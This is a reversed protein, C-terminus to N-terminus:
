IIPSLRSGLLGMYVDAPNKLGLDAGAAAALPGLGGLMMAASLEGKPSAHDGGHRHVDAAVSLSRCRSDPWRRRNRWGTLAM